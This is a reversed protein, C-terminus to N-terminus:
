CEDEDYNCRWRPLGINVFQFGDHGFYIDEMGKVKGVTMKYKDSFLQTGNIVNHMMIVKDKNTTIIIHFITENKNFLKILEKDLDDINVDLINFQREETDSYMINFISDKLELEERIISKMVNSM